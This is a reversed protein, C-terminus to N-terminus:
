LGRHDGRRFARTKAWDVFGNKTLGKRVGATLFANEVLSMDPAAAHGYRDEPASVWVRKGGIWRGWIAWRM